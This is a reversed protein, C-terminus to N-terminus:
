DDPVVKKPVAIAAYAGFFFCNGGDLKQETGFWKFGRELFFSISVFNSISHLQAAWSSVCRIGNSFGRM